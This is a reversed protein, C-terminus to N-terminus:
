VLAPPANVRAVNEVISLLRPFWTRVSYHQEVFARGAQGMRYRLEPAAMLKIIAERWEEKKSCDAFDM